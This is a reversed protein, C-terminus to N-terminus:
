CGDTSPCRCCTRWSSGAPRAAAPQRPRGRPRRRVGLSDPPLRRVAADASATDAVVAVRHFPRHGGSLAKFMAVREACITLGYTANEVNCGTIIDGDVTELAAGVKFRSYPAVARERARRAAAVLRDSSPCRHGGAARHVRRARAAGDGDGRRSAAAAAPRRRGHQHHVLHGARRHGHAPRRDGRARHVHRRRRRRDDRLYRIEAPTEYSPGHSPSTSATRPPRGGGRQAADDAIARLRPAYVATMDPFRVGFRDENPGVLPNSGMLNIHDDIVMLAGPSFSTNIGGAANTLVLTKVGLRGLCAHRSRSPGSITVKTSTPAAPWRWCRCGARRAACWRAPM